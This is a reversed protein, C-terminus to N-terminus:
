QFSISFKNSVQVLPALTTICDFIGVSTSTFDAKGFSNIVLVAVVALLIFNMM